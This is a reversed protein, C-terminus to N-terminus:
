SVGRRASEPVLGLRDAFRDAVSTFRHEGLLTAMRPWTLHLNRYHRFATIPGCQLRPQETDYEWPHTYFMASVGDRAGRGFARRFLWFPLQRLYGGGAAPLRVGLVRTTALPIELLTGGPRQILCPGDPAGPYGYDPRRIPFLSSDYRFGEELLVDFAWETGPVISFSPARYGICPQGCANELATRSDRLEARFGAVDLTSVRRHWDGHSAVEHGSEAIRRVLAPYKRAVWGLTFFTGRIGKEALLDLLRSTNGVVRSAYGDWASRDVVSEFAVVQFYDEVDVSFLHPAGATPPLPAFRLPIATM